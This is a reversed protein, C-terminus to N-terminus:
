ETLYGPQGVIAERAVISLIWLIPTGRASPISGIIPESHFFLENEPAPFSQTSVRRAPERTSIRSLRSGPPVTSLKLVSAHRANM